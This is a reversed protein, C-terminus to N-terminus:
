ARFRVKDNAFYLIFYTETCSIKRFTPQQKKVVVFRVKDM